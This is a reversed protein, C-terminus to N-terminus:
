LGLGIGCTAGSVTVQTTFLILKDQNNLEGSAIAHVNCGLVSSEKEFNEITSDLITASATHGLFTMSLQNDERSIKNFTKEETYGASYDSCTSETVNFTIPLGSDEFNSNLDTESSMTVTSEVTLQCEEETGCGSSLWLLSLLLISRAFTCM